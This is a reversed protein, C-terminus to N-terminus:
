CKWDGGETLSRPDPSSKRDLAKLVDNHDHHICPIWLLARFFLPPKPRLAVCEDITAAAAQARSAGLVLLGLALLGLVVLRVHRM